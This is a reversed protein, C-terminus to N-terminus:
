IATGEFLSDGHKRPSLRMTDRTAKPWDPM